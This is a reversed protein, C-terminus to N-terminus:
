PFEGATRETSNLDLFCAHFSSIASFVTQRADDALSDDQPHLEDNDDPRSTTNLHAKKLPQNRITAVIQKTDREFGGGLLMDAEDVVLLQTFAFDKPQTARLLSKPTAVLVACARGRSPLQQQTSSLAVTARATNADLQQLVAHIQGVLEQSATLVLAVPRHIEHVPLPHDRLRELMPILYALTKGGGTEAAVVVDHQRQLVLPIARRQAASPTSIGMARLREVLEASVGLSHFRHRGAACLASVGGHPARPAARLALARHM